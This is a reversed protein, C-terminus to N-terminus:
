ITESQRTCNKPPCIVKFTAGAALALPGDLSALTYGAATSRAIFEFAKGLDLAWPQQNGGCIGLQAAIVMYASGM